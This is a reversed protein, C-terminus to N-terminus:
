RSSALPPFNMKLRSKSIRILDCSRMPSGDSEAIITTGYWPRVIPVEGNLRDLFLLWAECIELGGHGRRDELGSIISLRLKERCYGMVVCVQCGGRYEREM